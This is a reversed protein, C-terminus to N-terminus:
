LVFRVREFIMLWLDRILHTNSCLHVNLGCAVTFTIFHTEPLKGHVVHSLLPALSTVVEGWFVNTIEWSSGDLNAGGGEEEEKDEQPQILNHIYTHIHAYTQIHTHAHIHTCAECAERWWVSWAVHAKRALLLSACLLPFFERPVCHTCCVFVDWGYCLVTNKLVM